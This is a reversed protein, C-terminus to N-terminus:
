ILLMGFSSHFVLLANFKTYMEDSAAREQQEKGDSEDNVNFTSVIDTKETEWNDFEKVMSAISEVTKVTKNRCMRFLRCKSNPKLDWYIM